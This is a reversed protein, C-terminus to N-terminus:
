VCKVSYVNGLLFICISGEEEVEEEAFEEEEIDEEAVEEVEEEEEAVEKDGVEEVV